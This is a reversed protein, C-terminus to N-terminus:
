NKEDIVYPVGYEPTFTNCCDDCPPVGYMCAQVTFAFISVLLVRFFRRLQKM